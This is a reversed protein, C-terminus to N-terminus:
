TKNLRECAEQVLEAISKANLIDGAQVDIGLETTNDTFISSESLEVSSLKGRHFWFQCSVASLSDFGYNSLAAAPEFASQDFGQLKALFQLFGELLVDYESERAGSTAQLRERITLEAGSKSASAEDVLVHNQLHGFEPM